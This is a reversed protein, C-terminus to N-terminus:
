EGQRAREKLRSSPLPDLGEAAFRRIPATLARSGRHRRAARRRPVAEALVPRGRYAEEIGALGYGTAFLFPIGREALADAVPFSRDGALNVDLM